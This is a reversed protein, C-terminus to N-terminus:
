RWRQMRMWLKDIAGGGGGCWWETAAVAAAAYGGGGGIPLMVLLLLLLLWVLQCCLWSNVCRTELGGGQRLVPHDREAGWGRGGHGLVLHGLPYPGLSGLVRLGPYGGGVGGGGMCVYAANKYQLMRTTINPPMDYVYILPRVRTPRVPPDEAAPVPSISEALWPKHPPVVFSRGDHLEGAM